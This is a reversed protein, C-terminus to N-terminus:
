WRCGGAAAPSLLRRSLHLDDAPSGRLVLDGLSRGLTPLSSLRGLPAPAAGGPLAAAPGQWGSPPHRRPRDWTSGVLHHSPDLLSAGPARCLRSCGADEQSAAGLATVRQSLVPLWHIGGWASGWPRLPSGARIGASGPASRVGEQLAAGLHCCGRALHCCGASGERLLDGPIWRPDGCLEASCPAPRARGPWDSVAAGVSQAGTCLPDRELLIGPSRGPAPAGHPDGSFRPAARGAPSVWSLLVRQRLETM